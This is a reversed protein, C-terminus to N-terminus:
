RDGRRRKKDKMSSKVMKGFAKFRARREALTENNFREEAILKRYRKLRNPDLEGRRLADQVACDPETEHGCDPFRCQAALAVIDAFVDDIGEQVDTLQLERMGPTDILWAGGPLRHLARGTTTHRGKADDERIGQTAIDGSGLLTNTLTSKGVGSSGVVALTQGAKCWPELCTLNERDRADVTEVLLGPLLSEAQRAYARPDDTMDAKTLVVVPTVQAERALALYRELRAINFDQNCSSVILLTGVNAAILQTRRSTGASRRKFLSTRDLLRCARKTGPDILVWDGVTPVAEEDDANETFPPISGEYDPGAVDLHGRHVAMVRVPCLTEIDDLDLQSQFYPTWGYDALSLAQANAHSTM